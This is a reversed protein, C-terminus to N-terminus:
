EKQGPQRVTLVGCNLLSFQDLAFPYTRSIGERAPVVALYYHRRWRQVRDSREGFASIVYALRFRGDNPYGLGIASGDPSDLEKGAYEDKRYSRRRQRRRSM